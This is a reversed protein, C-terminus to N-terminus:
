SFRINDIVYKKIDVKIAICKKHLFMAVIKRKKEKKRYFLIRLIYLELPPCNADYTSLEVLIYRSLVLTHKWLFHLTCDRSKWDQTSAHVCNYQRIHARTHRHTNTHIYSNHTEIDALQIEALMKVAHSFVMTNSIMIFQRTCAYNIYKELLNDCMKIRM